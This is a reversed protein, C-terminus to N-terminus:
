KVKIMDCDVCIRTEIWPLKSVKIFICKQNSKLIKNPFEYESFINLPTPINNYLRWFDEITEIKAIEITNDAYKKNNNKEHFYLNWKSNLKYNSM